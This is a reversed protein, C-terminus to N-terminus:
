VVSLNYISNHIRIINCHANESKKKKDTKCYLKYDRKIISPGYQTIFSESPDIRSARRLTM